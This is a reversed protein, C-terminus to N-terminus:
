GLQEVTAHLTLTASEGPALQPAGERVRTAEVCVFHKWADDPMDANAASGKTGPNWVVSKDSEESSLTIKRNGGADVLVIDGAFPYFRDVTQGELAEFPGAPLQANDALRDIGGEEIGEIRLAQADVAWYAHLALEPAINETGTNTASLRVWFDSGLHVTYALQLSDGLEGGLASGALTFTAEVATSDGSVSELTWDQIRAWGHLGNDSPGFWPAVVPIGGRIPTGQTLGSLESMYLVDEFGAPKWSAVHAGYPFVTGSVTDTNIELASLDGRTVLSVGAINQEAFPISQTM